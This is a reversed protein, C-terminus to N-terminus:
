LKTITKEMMQYCGDPKHFGMHRWFRYSAGGDSEPLMHCLTIKHIDYKWRLTHLMAKGIGNGRWGKTVEFKNIYITFWPRGDRITFSEFDVMMAGVFAGQKTKPIPAIRHDDMYVAFIQMTGCSTDLHTFLEPVKKAQWKTIKKVPEIILNM